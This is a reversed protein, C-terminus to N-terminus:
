GGKRSARSDCHGQGPDDVAEAAQAWLNLRASAPVAVPLAGEPFLADPYTARVIRGGEVYVRPVRRSLGCLIEYPVSDALDALEEATVKEKGQEGLLVVEEGVSVGPLHGVSVTLMDMSVAGVVPARRGRVLVDAKNSLVRPYGDAYGMPVIAIRSRASTRFTRGYGVTRPGEAENIHTVRSKWSMVPSFGEVWDGARPSVGYLLVGLRVMDLRSDPLSLFAGSNACHLVPPLLGRGRLGKVLDLFSELQRASGGAPDEADAFHSMLGRVEIGGMDALRALFDAAEGPQVGLRGMGTDVKLHVAIRRGVARGAASLAEALAADCLVVEFGGAAVSPAQEALTGGLVLIPAAVGTRRLEWGEELVGVGLTEAGAAVATGAVEAAGHGYGDAKVVALLRTSRGLLSRVRATNKAFADLDIQAVTPRLTQSSSLGTAATTSM